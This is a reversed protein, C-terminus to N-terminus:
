GNKEEPAAAQTKEEPKRAYPYQVKTRYFTGHYDIVLNRFLIGFLDHIENEYTFACWYLHSISQLSGGPPVSLRLNELRYDRDFSYTMECMDGIMAACVQVLRWGGGFYDSVKSLLEEPAVTIFTQEEIM